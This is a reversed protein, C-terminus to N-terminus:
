DLSCDDENIYEMWADYYLQRNSEVIDYIMEDSLESSIPEYYECAERSPCIDGFCCTSCQEYM